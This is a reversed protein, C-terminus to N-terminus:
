AEIVRSKLKSFEVEDIAGEDLLRKLEAIQTAADTGAFRVHTLDNVAINLGSEGGDSGDEEESRHIAHMSWLLALLWGFGTLGGAINIVGILYRNPHCRRFAIITPLCYGSIFILLFVLVVIPNQFM